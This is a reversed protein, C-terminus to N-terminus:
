VKPCHKPKWELITIVSDLPSEAFEFSVKGCSATFDEIDRPCDIEDCAMDVDTICKM